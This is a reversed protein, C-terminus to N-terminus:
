EVAKMLGINGEQILDLMPMGPRQYKRAISVVLRLNSEILRARARAGRRSAMRLASQTAPDLDEAYLAADADIGDDANAGFDILRFGDPACFMLGNPTPCVANPALTGTAVNLANVTWATPIGTYDGTVQWINATGKFVM